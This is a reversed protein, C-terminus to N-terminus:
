NSVQWERSKERKDFISHESCSPLTGMKLRLRTHECSQVSVYFEPLRSTTPAINYTCVTLRFRLLFCLHPKSRIKTRSKPMLDIIGNLGLMCM